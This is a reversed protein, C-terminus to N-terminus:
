PFAPGDRSPPPTRTERRKRKHILRINRGYIVLGSSQGLVGVVDQRWVFYAFLMAGGILSMWWFASPVISQKERESVFWQLLMRGSFAIQGGFGLAVWM